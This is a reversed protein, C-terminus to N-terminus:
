TAAKMRQPYFVAAEEGGGRENESLAKFLHLNFVVSPFSFSLCSSAACFSFNKVHFHSVVQFIFLIVHLAIFHFLVQPVIVFSGSRGAFNQVILIFM